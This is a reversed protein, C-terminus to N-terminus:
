SDDFAADRWNLASRLGDRATIRGFEASAPTVHFMADFGPGVPISATRGAATPVM